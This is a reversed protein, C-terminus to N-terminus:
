QETKKAKLQTLRTQIRAIDRRNRRIIASSSLQNLSKQVRLGLLEKKMSLMSDYLETLTKSMVDRYKM